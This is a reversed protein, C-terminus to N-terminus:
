RINAKIHAIKAEVANEYQEEEKQKKSMTSASTLSNLTESKSKKTEFADFFNKDAEVNTTDSDYLNEPLNHKKFDYTEFNPEEQPEVPENKKGMLSELIGFKSM